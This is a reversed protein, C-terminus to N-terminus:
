EADRAEPRDGRGHYPSYLMPWLVGRRLAEMPPFQALTPPQFGLFVEPPLVYTKATHPSCPDFPGVYPHYVREQSYM